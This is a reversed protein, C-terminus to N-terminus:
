ISQIPAAITDEEMNRSLGIASLQTELSLEWHLQTTHALNLGTQLTVQDDRRSLWAM